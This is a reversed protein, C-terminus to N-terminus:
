NCDILCVFQAEDVCVGDWAQDCCYPDVTCVDEVCRSCTKNMKEGDQCVSHACDCGVNCTTKALEM